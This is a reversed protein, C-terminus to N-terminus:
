TFKSRTLNRILDKESGRVAIRVERFRTSVKYRTGIKEAAALTGDSTDDEWEGLRWREAAAVTGHHRTMRGNTWGGGACYRLYLDNAALWTAAETQNEPDSSPTVVENWRLRFELGGM